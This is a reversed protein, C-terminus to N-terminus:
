KQREQMRNEMYCGPQNLIYFYFCFDSDIMRGLGELPKDNQM